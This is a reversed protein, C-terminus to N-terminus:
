IYYPVSFARGGGREVIQILLYDSTAFKEGINIDVCEITDNKDKVSARNSYDKGHIYVGCVPSCEIHLIDGDLWINKFTPGTSAYFAGDDIANILALYSLEKAKIVTFGHFYELGPEREGYITHSDDTAIPRVRRGRRLESEFIASSDGYGDQIAEYGNVAEINDVDGVKALNENSIGSWRPHNLTTIFGNKRLTEIGANIKEIDDFPDNPITLETLPDRAIGCVHVSTAKKIGFAIEVGTLAVFNEDSLETHPRCVQHDTYAVASYGHEMYIKKIEEPSFKGDSVTTHCHLNAKYLNGDKPLLYKVNKGRVMIKEERFICTTYWM